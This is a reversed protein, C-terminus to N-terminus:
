PANNSCQSATEGQKRLVNLYPAMLRRRAWRYSTICILALVPASWKFYVVFVTSITLSGWYWIALSPLLYFLTFSGLICLPALLHFLTSRPGRSALRAAEQLNLDDRESTPAIKKALVRFNIM